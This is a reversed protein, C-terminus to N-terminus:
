TVQTGPENLTRTKSGACYDSTLTRFDPILVALLERFKGM